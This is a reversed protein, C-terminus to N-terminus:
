THEAHSASTPEDLHAADNAARYSRGIIARGVLLVNKPNEGIRRMVYPWRDRGFPLYVRVSIGQGRLEQQWAPRVGYLMEFEYEHSSWDNHRAVAVLQRTLADDHTAFVPRFGAARAQPTLMTRGLQLYAADIAERGQHDDAVGRPFAGKVLRVCTPTRVVTELDRETRRLRAQLTIAAPLGAAVLYRHLALTPEVLSFDEMDLMVTTRDGSAGASAAARAVREANHRALEEGSLFGIATPDVSVHIDLGDGGLLGAASIAEVV